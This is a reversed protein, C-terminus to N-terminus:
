SPSRLASIDLPVSFVMRLHQVDTPTTSDTTIPEPNSRISSLTAPIKYLKRIGEEIAVVYLERGNESWAVSYPSLHWRKASEQTPMENIAMHLRFDRINNIVIVSNRDNPDIPHQKKLFAVSDGSPSFVPNSSGGELGRVRIIQPRPKSVETFTKLPIYYVNAGRSDTRSEKALFVIGSTSIDFDTSAYMPSKLGTGRLANVFKTPSVIYETSLATMAKKRLTTIWIANFTDGTYVNGTKPNYLAGNSTTPCSVAIAIDQHENQLRQLKLHTAMAGIRGACYRSAPQKLTKRDTYDRVVDDADGIWFETAGHDACKMWIVLDGVGLWTAEKDTSDNSFLASTNTKLDLIRTETINAHSAPTQKNITYIAKTGYRNPISASRRLFPASLSCAFSTNADITGNGVSGFIFHQFSRITSDAKHLPDATM